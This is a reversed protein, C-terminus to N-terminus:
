IVFFAGIQIWADIFLDWKGGGRERRLGAVGMVPAPLSPDLSFATRSQTM